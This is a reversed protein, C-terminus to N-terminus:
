QLDPLWCGRKRWNVTCREAPEARETGAPDGWSRPSSARRSRGSAGDPNQPVNPYGWTGSPFLARPMEVLVAAGHVYLSISRDRSWGQRLHFSSARGHRATVTQCLCTGRGSGYASSSVQRKFCINRSHTLLQRSFSFCYLRSSNRQGRLCGIGGLIGQSVSVISARATGSDGSVASEGRTRGPCKGRKYLSPHSHSFRHRLAHSGFHPQLAHRLGVFLVPWAVSLAIEGGGCGRARLKAQVSVRVRLPVSGGWAGDLGPVPGDGSGPKSSGFGSGEVPMQSRM